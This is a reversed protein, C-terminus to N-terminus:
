IVSFVPSIGESFEAKGDYFYIVYVNCLIVLNITNKILYFSDM